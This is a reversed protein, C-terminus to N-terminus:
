YLGWEGSCVGTMLATFDESETIEKELGCTKCYRKTGSLTKAWDHKLRKAPQSEPPTGWELTEKVDEPPLGSMKALLETDLKPTPPKKPLVEAEVITKGEKDVIQKLVEIQTHEDGQLFETIQDRSLSEVNIRRMDQLFVSMQLKGGRADRLANNGYGCLVGITHATKTDIGVLPGRQLLGNIVKEVLNAYDDYSQLPLYEQSQVPNLAPRPESKRQKKM